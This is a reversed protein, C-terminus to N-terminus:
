LNTNTHTHSLNHTHSLSFARVKEAMSERFLPSRKKSTFHVGKPEKKKKRIDIRVRQRFPLLSQSPSPSWAVSCLLMPCSHLAFLPYLARHWMFLRLEILQQHPLLPLGTRGSTSALLVCESPSPHVTQNSTSSEHAFAFCFPSCPVSSESERIMNVSCNARITNAARPVLKAPVALQIPVLIKRMGPSALHM